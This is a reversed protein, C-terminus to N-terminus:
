LLFRPCPANREQPESYPSIHKPVSLVQKLVSRYSSRPCSAIREQPESYPFIHKPVSLVQKLVSRYSSLCKKGPNRSLPLINLSLFYRNSYLEILPPSPLFCNKRANGPFPSIYKPVSRVQKLVSRYSSALAPLLEERRNRSVPGILELDSINLFTM